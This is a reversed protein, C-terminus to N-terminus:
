SNHTKTVSTEESDRILDRVHRPTEFHDLPLYQYIPRLYESVPFTEPRKPYEDPFRPTVLVGWPFIHAMPPLSVLIDFQNLSPPVVGKRRRRGRRGGKWRWSFSFLPPSFGVLVLLGLLVGGITLGKTTPRRRGEKIYPPLPAGWLVDITRKATHPAGEM